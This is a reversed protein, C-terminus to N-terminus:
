LDGELYVIKEEDSIEKLNINDLTLSIPSSNEKIHEFVVKIEYDSFKELTRFLEKVKM